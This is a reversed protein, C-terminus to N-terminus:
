DGLREDLLDWLQRHAPGLDTSVLKKPQDDRNGTKHSSVAQSM